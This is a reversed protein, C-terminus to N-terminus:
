GRNRTRIRIFPEQIIAAGSLFTRIKELIVGSAICLFICWIAILWSYRPAYTLNQFYYYAFFTHTLWIYTSYKGIFLFINGLYKGAFANKMLLVFGFVLIPVLYYDATGLTRLLFVVMILVTGILLRIWDKKLIKNGLEYWASRAFYMGEIFYLFVLFSSSWPSGQPVFLLFTLGLLVVIHTLIKNKSDMWMFVFSVLPFLIMLKIYHGIYWWEANYVYSQGLLSKLITEPHVLYIGLLFGIPIFTVFVLWFRCFFKLLHRVSSGYNKWISHPDTCGSAHAKKEMGYGSCFAFVAICIRGFYSALTEIHFLSDFVLVYPVNVREPFGFLHHWVMLSVAFGQLMISEKKSLFAEGFNNKQTCM